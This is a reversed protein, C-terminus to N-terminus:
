KENQKEENSKQDKPMAVIRKQIDSMYGQVKAEILAASMQNVDVAKKLGQVDVSVEAMTKKHMNAAHWAQNVQSTLSQPIKNTMAATAKAKKFADMASLNLRESVADLAERQTIVDGESVSIFKEQVYRRVNPISKYGDNRVIQQIEQPMLPAFGTYELRSQLDSIRAKINTPIGQMKNIVKMKAVTITNEVVEVISQIMRLEHLVNTDIDTVAHAQHPLLQATLFLLVLLFKKM